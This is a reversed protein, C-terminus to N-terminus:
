FPTANAKKGPSINGVAGAVASHLAYVTGTVDPSLNFSTAVTAAGYTTTAITVPTAGGTKVTITDGGDNLSLTHQTAVPTFWNTVGPCAPAGGAWITVAKGPALTLSGTGVNTAAGFTFQVTASDSITVGTLDLTKTTSVNVLEIFEDDTNTLVTDCNSDVGGNTAGGDAALFENIALDGAAPAVPTMTTGGFKVDLLYTAATTAFNYVRITYTGAPLMVLQTPDAGTEIENDTSDAAGLYSCTRAGDDDDRALAMAPMSVDAGAAFVSVISDLGSCDLKNNGVGPAYNLNTGDIRNYTELTVTTPASLTFTYLDVDTGSSLTGKVVHNVPTLVQPITDNPEAEAVDFELTCTASCRDGSTTNLDDCEEPTAAMTDVVGDGCGKMRCVSAAGATPIVCNYGTEVECNVNCGDGAATNGDDCFEFQGSIMGNGCGPLSATINIEYNGDDTAAVGDVVVYYTGAPLNVVGLYGSVNFDACGDGAGTYEIVETSTDCAVRMLRVIANYDTAAGIEILMDRVDTTTFKYVKDHAGTGAPAGDCTADQVQSTGTTTDGTLTATLATTGTFTVNFPAACTGNATQTMTCVSPTGTCTYGSEVVCTSSCGDSNATNHDDCAETGNIVGNGCMSTTENQCTASCGDGSTTNGDDCQETAVDVNADGCRPGSTENQCSASCGDGATTNGDDCQESGTVHGDGCSGNNNGGDGGCATALTVLLSAGFLAVSRMKM